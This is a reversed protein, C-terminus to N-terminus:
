GLTSDIARFSPICELVLGSSARALTFGIGRTWRTSRARGPGIQAIDPTSNFFCPTKVARRQPKAGRLRV